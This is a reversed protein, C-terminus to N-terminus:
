LRVVSTQLPMGASANVADFVLAGLRAVRVYDVASHRVLIMVCDAETLAEDTLPLSEM